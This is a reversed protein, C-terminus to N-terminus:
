TTRVMQQSFKSFSLAYFCRRTIEDNVFYLPCKFERPIQRNTRPPNETKTILSISKAQEKMMSSIDLNNVLKMLNRVDFDAILSSMSFSSSPRNKRDRCISDCFQYPIPSHLSVLEIEEM